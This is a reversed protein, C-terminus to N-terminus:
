DFDGCLPSMVGQKIKKLATCYVKHGYFLSYFYRSVMPQCDFNRAFYRSAPRLNNNLERNTIFRVSGNRRVLFPFHATRGEALREAARMSRPFVIRPCIMKFIDVSHSIFPFLSILMSFIRKMSSVLTMMSVSLLLKSKSANRSVRGSQSIYMLGTTAISTSAFAPILLSSSAAARARSSENLHVSISLVTQSTATWIRLAFSNRRGSARIAAEAMVNFAV